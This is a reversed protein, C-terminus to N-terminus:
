INKGRRKHVYAEIGDKKLSIAQASAQKFSDYRGACVTHMDSRDFKVVEASNYGMEKLRGVELDAYDKSNFSGAIVMYKGADSASPRPAPDRPAPSSTKSNIDEDEATTSDEEEGDGEGEGENGSENLNLPEDEEEFEELDAEPLPDDEEVTQEVKDDSSAVKSNDCSKLVQSFWIFLVLLVIGLLFIRRIM